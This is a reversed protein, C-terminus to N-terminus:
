RTHDKQEIQTRALEVEPTTWGRRNKALKGVPPTITGDKLFRYFTRRSIGLLEIAASDSIQRSRESRM